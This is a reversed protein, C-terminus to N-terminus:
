SPVISEIIVQQPYCSPVIAAVIDRHLFRLSSSTHPSDAAPGLAHGVVVKGRCKGDVQRLCDRTAHLAIRGQRRQIEPAERGSHPNHITERKEDPGWISKLSHATFGSLGGMAKSGNPEGGIAVAIRIIRRFRWPSDPGMILRHHQAHLMSHQIPCNRQVAAASFRCQPSESHCFVFDERKHELAFSEGSGLGLRRATSATAALVSLLCAAGLRSGAPSERVEVNELKSFLCWVSVMCRCSACSGWGAAADSECPMPAAGGAYEGCGCCDTGSVVGFWGGTGTLPRGESRFAGGLGNGV